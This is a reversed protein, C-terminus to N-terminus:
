DEEEKKKNPVFVGDPGETTDTVDDWGEESETGDVVIESSGTPKRKIRSKFSSFTKKTKEEAAGMMKKGSTVAAGARKKAKDVTGYEVDALHEYLTEYNVIFWNAEEIIEGILAEKKYKKSYKNIEKNSPDFQETNTIGHKKLHEKSKQLKDSSFEKKLVKNAADHYQNYYDRRTDQMKNTAERVSHLEDRSENELTQYAMEGQERLRRDKSNRAEHVSMEKKNGQSDTFEMKKNQSNKLTFHKKHRTIKDLYVYGYEHLEAPTIIDIANKVHNEGPQEGRIHIMMEGKEGTGGDYSKIIKAEIWGSSAGENKLECFYQYSRNAKVVGDFTLVDQVTMERTGSYIDLRREAVEKILYKKYGDGIIWDKNIKSIIAENLLINNNEFAKKLEEKVKGEKLYEQYTLALSFMYERPFLIPTIEDRPDKLPYRQNSLFEFYFISSYIDTNVNNMIRNVDNSYDEHLESKKENLKGRVGEMKKGLDMFKIKEELMQKKVQNIEGVSSASKIQKNYKKMEDTSLFAHADLLNEVATNKTSLLIKEKKEKNERAQLKQEETEELNSIIRNNTGGEGGGFGSTKKDVVRIVDHFRVKRRAM